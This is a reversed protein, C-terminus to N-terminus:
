TWPCGASWRCRGATRAHASRRPGLPQSPLWRCLGGCRHRDADAAAGDLVRRLGGHRGAPIERVQLVPAELRVVQRMPNPAGPTPNIGYLACGPRALDSAFGAGSSSAPPIPSAARRAAARRACAAAFRARQAANLPHAPEDACALHTMVYRLTSGPWGRRTRPWGRRSGRMSASGRWAPISICSARAARARGRAARRM